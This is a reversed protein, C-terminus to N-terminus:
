RHPRELDLSKIRTMTMSGGDVAVARFGLREYLRVAPNQPSVSLAVRDYSEDARQLLLRLLETGIGCGRVEPRVAMSLEPTLTDIFGYGHDHEAWLRLWAAGIPEDNSAVAIIGDDGRRGWGSVYRALEPQEVVSYHAPPNGPPVFVALYLMDRLVAEDCREAPRFALNPVLSRIM